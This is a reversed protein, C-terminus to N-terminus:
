GGPGPVLIIPFYRSPVSLHTSLALWFVMYERLVREM